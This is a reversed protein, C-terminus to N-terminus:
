ARAILWRFTNDFRYSGDPRRQAAAAEAVETSLADDVGKDRLDLLALDFEVAGRLQELDAAEYPVAVDGSEAPDLGADGALGEM